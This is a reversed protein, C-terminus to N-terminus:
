WFSQFISVQVSLPRDQQWQRPLVDVVVRIFGQLFSREMGWGGKCIVRHCSESFNSRNPVLPSKFSQLMYESSLLLPDPLATQNLIMTWHEWRCNDEEQGSWLVVASQPARRHGGWKVWCGGRGWKLDSATGWAGERGVKDKERDVAVWGAVSSESICILPVVIACCTYVTLLGAVDKNSCTQCLPLRWGQTSNSAFPYYRNLYFTIFLLILFLVWRIEPSESFGTDPLYQFFDRVQITPKGRVRFYHQATHSPGTQGVPM